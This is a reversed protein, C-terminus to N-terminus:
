NCYINNCDTQCFRTVTEEKTQEIKFLYINKQLRCITCVVSIVDCNLFLILEKAVNFSNQYERQQDWCAIVNETKIKLICFNKVTETKNPMVLQGFESSGKKLNPQKFKVKTNFLAIYIFCFCNKQYCCGVSSTILISKKCQEYQIVM